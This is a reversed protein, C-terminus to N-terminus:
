KVPRYVKRSDGFMVNIEAISSLQELIELLEETTAVRYQPLYGSDDKATCDVIYVDNGFSVYEEVTYASKMGGVVWRAFAKPPFVRNRSKFMMESEANYADYERAIEAIETASFLARNRRHWNLVGWDKEPIERGSFNFEFCNNSGSNVLPVFGDGARIFAREYYIQYSM